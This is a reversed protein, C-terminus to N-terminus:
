NKKIRLNRAIQDIYQSIHDPDFDAVMCRLKETDDFQTKKLTYLDGALDIQSFLIEVLNQELLFLQVLQIVAPHKRCDGSFVKYWSEQGCSAKETMALVRENVSELQAFFFPQKADTGIYYTKVYTLFIKFLNM